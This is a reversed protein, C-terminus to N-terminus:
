ALKVCDPQYLERTTWPGDPVRVQIGNKRFGVGVKAVMGIFRKRNHSVGVKGTVEDIVQYYSLFSVTDGTKINDM